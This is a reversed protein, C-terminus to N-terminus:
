PESNRYNPYAALFKDKFFSEINEEENEKSLSKFEYKETKWIPISRNNLLYRVTYDVQNLEIEIKEVGTKRRIEKGIWLDIFSSDERVECNVGSSNQFIESLSQLQLERLNRPAKNILDIESKTIMRLEHDIIWVNEETYFTITESTQNIIGYRNSYVYAEEIFNENTGNLVNTKATFRFCTINEEQPNFLVHSLLMTQFNKKCLNVSVSDQSKADLQFITTLAILLAFVNLIRDRHQQLM